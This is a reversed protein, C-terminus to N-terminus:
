KILESVYKRTKDILEPNQLPFWLTDYWLKKLTIRIRRMKLNIEDLRTAYNRDYAEAEESLEQYEKVYNSIKQWILSWSNRINYWRSHLVHSIADISNEVEEDDISYSRLESSKEVEANLIWVLTESDLVGYFSHTFNEGSEEPRGNKM